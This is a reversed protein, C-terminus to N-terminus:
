PTIAGHIEALPEQDGLADLQATIAALKRDNVLGKAWCCSRFPGFSQGTALCAQRTAHVFAAIGPDDATTECLLCPQLNPTDM